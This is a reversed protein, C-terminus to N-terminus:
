EGVQDTVEIIPMRASCHPTQHSAARHRLQISPLEIGVLRVLTVKEEVVDRRKKEMKDLEREYRRVNDLFEDRHLLIRM